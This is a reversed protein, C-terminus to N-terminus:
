VEDRLAGERHVARGVVADGTTVEGKRRRAVAAIAHLRAGSVLRVRVEVGEVSIDRLSSKLAALALAFRPPAGLYWSLLAAAPLSNQRSRIASSHSSLPLSKTSSPRSALAVAGPPSRGASPTTVPMPRTCPRGTAMMALSEVTFAPEHPARVTSFITRM